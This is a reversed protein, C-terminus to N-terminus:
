FDGEFFFRLGSAEVRDWNDLIECLQPVSKFGDFYDRTHCAIDLAYEVDERELQAFEGNGIELRRSMPEYLDWFKRAYYVESPHSYDIVEYGEEDVTEVWGSHCTNWFEDTEVQKKNKATVIRVDLGM